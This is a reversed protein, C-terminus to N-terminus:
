EESSDGEAADSDSDGDGDAEGEVGEGEAAELEEDVIEEEARTKVVSVVGLDHEAYESEDIYMFVSLEVGEPLKLDSLHLAEGLHLNEIDIEIFEPIDKPM